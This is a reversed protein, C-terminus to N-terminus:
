QQWSLLKELPLTDICSDGGTTNGVFWPIIPQRHSDRYVAPTSLGRSGYVTPPKTGM